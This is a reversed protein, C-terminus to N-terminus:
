AGAFVRWMEAQREPPAAVHEPCDLRLAAAGFASDTLACHYPAEAEAHAHPRFHSCSVCLRQPAIAGATQLARIIKVVSGLLATQEARSLTALARDLESEAGPSRM